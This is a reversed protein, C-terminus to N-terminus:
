RRAILIRDIGSYDKIISLDRFDKLEIIRKVERYQSTGLEFIILADKKMLHSINNIIRRYFDLGDIGGDLAIHPEKQVERPLRQIEDSQIYPPNSIILDFFGINIPEFLDCRVFAINDIDNRKANQTAYGLSAESIDTGVVFSGEIYKAMALAICGSGTCLDLILPDKIQRRKIENIAYETLLETEPRPIFVGEGVNITLDFFEVGGLLYQLPQGNIRKKVIEEIYKSQGQTLELDSVILGNIKKSIAHSIILRAEFHPHDISYDKLIKSIKNLKSSVKM